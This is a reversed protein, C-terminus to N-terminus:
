PTVTPAATLELTVNVVIEAGEATLADLEFKTCFANFGIQYAGTDPLVIQYNRATGATYNTRFAEHSTIAPDFILKLEVNQPDDTTIRRLPYTQGLVPIDVIKKSYGSWKIEAVQAVETFVEPSAANGVKLSSGVSVLAVM